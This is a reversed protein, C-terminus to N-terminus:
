DAIKTFTFDITAALAAPVAIVLAAGWGVVALAAAAVRVLRRQLITVRQRGTNGAPQGPKNWEGRSIVNVM